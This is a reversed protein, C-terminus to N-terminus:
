CCSLLCCPRRPGVRLLLGDLGGAFPLHPLMHIRAWFGVWAFGAVLLVGLWAFMTFEVCRCEWAQIPSARGGM